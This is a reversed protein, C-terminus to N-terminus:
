LYPAPDVPAMNRLVQFQVSAPSNEAVQGIVQGRGIRDGRSVSVAGLRGYATVIDNPHRIMVINDFSGVSRAVYIVEGDDAAVVDQGPAAEFDIGDNRNSGPQASYPRLVGGPVPRLFTAGSEARASSLAPSEPVAPAAAVPEPLPDAASPPPTVAVRDGPQAITDPRPPPPTSGPAPAAAVPTAVVPAAAIPTVSGGYDPSLSALVSM